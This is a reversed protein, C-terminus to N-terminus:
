NRRIVSSWSGCPDTGFVDKCVRMQAGDNTGASYVYCNGEKYVWSTSSTNSTFRGCVSNTYFDYVNLGSAYVNRGGGYSRIYGGGYFSDEGWSYVTMDATGDNSGFTVAAAPSAGVLLCLFTLTVFKLSRKVNM